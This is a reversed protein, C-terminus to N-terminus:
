IKGEELKEANEKKFANIKDRVKFGAADRYKKEPSTANSFLDEDEYSTALISSTKVVWINVCKKRRGYQEKAFVLALEASPAHVSGVHEHQDGRKTQHFVEYTQWCEKQELTVNGEANLSLRKVRPDLSSM